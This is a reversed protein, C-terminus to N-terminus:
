QVDHHGIQAEICGNPVLHWICLLADRCCGMSGDLETVDDGM